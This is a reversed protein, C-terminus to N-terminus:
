PIFMVLRSNKERRREIRERERERYIYIYIYINITQFLQNHSNSNYVSQSVKVTNKWSSIQCLIPQWQLFFNLAQKLSPSYSYHNLNYLLVKNQQWVILGAENNLIYHIIPIILHLVIRDTINDEDIFNMCAHVNM